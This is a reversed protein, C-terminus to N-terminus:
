LPCEEWFLTACATIGSAISSTVAFLTGPPVITMGDFDESMMPPVTQTTIAGTSTGFAAARGWLLATTLTAASGARIVSTGQGGLGCIAAGRTATILTFASIPAATALSAGVNGVWAYGWGSTATSAQTDIGVNCRILSLNKGSGEPNWLLLGTFSANSFISFVAGAAANSAYYVNGRVAQTYYKGHLNSVIAEGQRGGLQGPMAGDGLSVASPPAVVVQSLAM